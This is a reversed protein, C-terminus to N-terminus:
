PEQHRQDHCKPGDPSSVHEVVPPPHDTREGRRNSDPDDPDPEAQERERSEEVEAVAEGNGEPDGENWLNQDSLPPDARRGLPRIIKV